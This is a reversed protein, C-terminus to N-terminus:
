VKLWEKMTAEMLITLAFGSSTCPAGYIQRKVNIKKHTFRKEHRKKLEFNNRRENLNIM